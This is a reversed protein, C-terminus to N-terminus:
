NLLEMARKSSILIPSSIGLDEFIKKIMHDSDILDYKAFVILVESKNAKLV